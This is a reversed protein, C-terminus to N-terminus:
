GGGVVVGGAHGGDQTTGGPQPIHVVALVL